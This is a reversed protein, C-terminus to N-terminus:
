LPFLTDLSSFLTFISHIIFIAPLLSLIFFAGPTCFSIDPSRDM